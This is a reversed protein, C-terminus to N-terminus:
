KPDYHVLEGAANYAKQVVQKQGSVPVVTEIVQYGDAGHRFAELVVNPGSMKVTTSYSGTLRKVAGLVAREQEGPLGLQWVTERAQAKSGGPLAFPQPRAQQGPADEQPEPLVALAVCRCQFDEGPHGVAPPDDWAIVKGNLLGHSPRVRADSATRWIYHTCGAARQSHQMAFAAANGLENRAILNARVQNLRTAERIRAAIQDTSQGRELGVRLIANVRGSLDQQGAGWFERLRQENMAVWELQQTPPVLFAATVGQQAALMEGAGTVTEAVATRLLTALAEPPEATAGAAARFAAKLGDLQQLRAMPSDLETTVRLLAILEALNLRGYHTAVARLAAAERRRGARDLDGIIREVVARSM